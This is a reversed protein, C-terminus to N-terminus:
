IFNSCYSRKSETIMDVKFQNNGKSLLLNFADSM